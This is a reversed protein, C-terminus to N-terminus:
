LVLSQKDKHLAIKLTHPHEMKRKYQIKCKKLLVCACHSNNSNFPACSASPIEAQQPSESWIHHPGMSPCWSSARCPHHHSFMWSIYWLSFACVCSGSSQPSSPLSLFIASLSALFLYFPPFLPSPSSRLKLHESEFSIPDYLWSTQLAM